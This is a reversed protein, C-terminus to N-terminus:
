IWNNSFIQFLIYNISQVFKRCEFFDGWKGSPPFTPWSLFLTSQQDIQIILKHGLCVSFSSEPTQQDNHYELRGIPQIATNHIRNPGTGRKASGTQFSQLRIRSSHYFTKVTWVYFMYFYKVIGIKTLNLILSKKNSCINTPDPWFLPRCCCQQTPPYLSLKRLLHVVDM